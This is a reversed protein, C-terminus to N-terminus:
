SIYLSREEEPIELIDMAQQITVQLNKMICKLNTTFAEQRGEQRGSEKQDDWAKCMNIREGKETKKKYKNIDEKIDLM